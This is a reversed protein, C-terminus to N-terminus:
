FVVPRVLAARLIDCAWQQPTRAGKAQNCYCCALVLNSEHTPGGQSLPLVHDVTAEAETVRRRCYVCRPCQRLLRQRHKRRAKRQLRRVARWLPCDANSCPVWSYFPLYGAIRNTPTVM